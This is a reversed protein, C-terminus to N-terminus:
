TWPGIASARDLRALKTRIAAFTADDFEDSAALESRPDPGEAVRFRTRYISTGPDGRLDAILTAADAYGAAVADEDTIEAESVIDVASVNVIGAPTRNTRGAAAVPKKWRRFTATISGDAIGPWFRKEFLM